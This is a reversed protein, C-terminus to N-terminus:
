GEDTKVKKKLTKDRQAVLRPEICTEYDICDKSFCTKLNKGFVKKNQFPCIFDFPDNDDKKSM